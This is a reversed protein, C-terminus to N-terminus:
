LSLGLANSCQLFNVSVKDYQCNITLCTPSLLAVSSNWTQLIASIGVLQVLVPHDLQFPILRSMIVGVLLCGIFHFGSM